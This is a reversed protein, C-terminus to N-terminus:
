SRVLEPRGGVYSYEASCRPCSSLGFDFEEECVGCVVRRTAPDLKRYSHDDPGELRAPEAVVVRVRSAAANPDTVWQSSPALDHSEDFRTRVVRTGSWRDHWGAHGFFTLAEFPIFRTLTRGLIQALSPRGGDAGVVRTGTVFKAPTRGLIAEFGAYYVFVVLYAIDLGSGLLITTVTMGVSDLLLNLFRQWRSAVVLEPVDEDVDDTM